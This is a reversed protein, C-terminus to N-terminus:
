DAKIKFQGAQSHGTIVPQYMMEIVAPLATVQGTHEARIQYHILYKKEDMENIYFNIAQDRIDMYAGLSDFFQYGSQTELTEFGAPKPDTLLLYELTAEAVIELEVTIIENTKVEYDPSLLESVEGNKRFYRRKVTVLSGTEKTAPGSQQWKASAVVAVFGADQNMINLQHSGSALKGPNILIRKTFPDTDVLNLPQNNLTVTCNIPTTTFNHQLMFDALADIILATDITSKWRDSQSKISSLYNVLPSIKELPEVQKLLLKLYLAQVIEHDNKWEHSNPTVLHCSNSEPNSTLLREIQHQVQKAQDKPLALALYLKGIISLQNFPAEFASAQPLTKFELQDHENLQTLVYYIFAAENVDLSEHEKIYQKHLFKAGQEFKSNFPFTNPWQEGTNLNKLLGDLVTATMFLDASKEGYWSWGGDRTQLEALRELGALTYGRILESSPLLDQPLNLEKSLKQVLSLPVFKNMTQEVCGHPYHILYPLSETLIPYLSNQLQLEFEISGPNATAPIEMSWNFQQQKGGLVAMKFTSEKFQNAIIPLTIEAADYLNPNQNSQIRVQLLEEGSQIAQLQWSIIAQGHAPIVTPNAQPFTIKTCQNKSDLIAEISQPQDTRNSIVADIMLDDENVMFRPPQLQVMLPKTVTFSTATEAGRRDPLICWAKVQWRTMSDPTTFTCAGQGNEDLEVWEFFFSHPYDRRTNETVTLATKADMTGVFGGESGGWGGFGDEACGWGGADDCDDEAYGGFADGSNLLKFTKIYAPFSELPDVDSYLHYYTIPLYLSELWQPPVEDTQFISSKDPQSRDNLIQGKFAWFAPLSSSYIADHTNKLRKKIATPLHSSPFPSRGNMGADYIAVLARTNPPLPKKSKVTIALQGTEGNTYNPKLPTCSIQMEPTESQNELPFYLSDAVCLQNQATFAWIHCLNSKPDARHAPLQLQAAHNELTVTQSQMKGSENLWFITVPASKITSLILVTVEGDVPTNREQRILEFTPLTPVISQSFDGTVTFAHGALFQGQDSVIVARYIGASLPKAFRTPKASKIASEAVLQFDTKDENKFLQYLNVKGSDLGEITFAPPEKSTFFQKLPTIKPQTPTIGYWHNLKSDLTEQRNGPGNAMADVSIILNSEKLELPLACTLTAKGDKITAELKFTHHADDKSLFLLGTKVHGAVPVHGTFSPNMRRFYNSAIKKDCYSSYEWGYGASGYDGWGGGWGSDEDWFPKAWNPFNLRELSTEDDNESEFAKVGINITAKLKGKSMKTGTLYQAEYILNLQNDSIKHNALSLNFESKRFSEVAGFNNHFECWHEKLELYIRGNRVTKPLVTEYYFTGNASMASPSLEIDLGSTKLLLALTEGAPFTRVAEADLLWVALKVTEGPRYIPQSWAIAFEPREPLNKAWQKIPSLQKEPKPDTDNQKNSKPNFERITNQDKVCVLLPQKDPTYGLTFITGSNLWDTREFTLQGNHDTPTSQFTTEYAFKPYKILLSEFPTNRLPIGTTLDLMVPATMENQNIFHSPFWPHKQIVTYSKPTGEAQVELLYYGNALEDIPFDVQNLTYPTLNTTPIQWTKGLQLNLEDRMMFLLKEITTSQSNTKLSFYVNPLLNTESHEQHVNERSGGDGWGTGWGTDDDAFPDSFEDENNEEPLYYEELDAIFDQLPLQFVSNTPHEQPSEEFGGFDDYPDNDDAYPETNSTLDIALPSTVHWDLGWNQLNINSHHRVRRQIFPSDPVVFMKTILQKPLRDRLLRLQSSLKSLLQGDKHHSKLLEWFGPIDIAYAKVTVQNTNQVLLKPQIHSYRHLTPNQSPWDFSCYTAEKQAIIQDLLPTNLGRKQLRKAFGLQKTPEPTTNIYACAALYAVKPQGTLALQKLRELFQYDAPIPHKTLKPDSYHIFQNDFTGCNFSGFLNHVFNWWALNALDGRSQQAQNFLTCIRQWDNTAQQFDTVLPQQLLHTLYAVVEKNPVKHFALPLPQGYDTLESLNPSASYILKVYAIFFGLDPKFDPNIRLAEFRKFADSYDVFLTWGDVNFQARYDATIDQSTHNPYQLFFHAAVLQVKLNTEFQDEAKEVLLHLQELSVKAKNGAQIALALLRDPEAVTSKALQASTDQWCAEFKQQLFLNEAHEFTSAYLPLYICVLLFNYLLKKM